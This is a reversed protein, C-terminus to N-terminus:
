AALERDALAKFMHVALAQTTCHDMEIDGNRDLPSVALAAQAMATFATLNRPLPAQCIAASLQKEEWCLREIEDETAAEQEDSQRELEDLKRIKLGVSKLQNCLRIFENQEDRPAAVTASLMGGMLAAVSLGLASRREVNM